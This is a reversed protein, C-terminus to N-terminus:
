SLTVFYFSLSFLIFIFGIFSFTFVILPALKKSDKMSTRITFVTGAAEYSFGGVGFFIGVHTLDWFTYTLGPDINNPTLMYVNHFYMIVVICIIVGSSVIAYPKLKEPEVIIASLFLFFGIIMIKFLFISVGFFSSLVHSIEIVAAIIISGNILM